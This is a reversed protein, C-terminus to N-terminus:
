KDERIEEGDPHVQQSCRHVFWLTEFWSFRRCDWSCLQRVLRLSHDCNVIKKRAETLYKTAICVFYTDNTTDIFLRIKKIPALNYRKKWTVVKAREKERQGADRREGRWERKMGKRGEGGDKGRGERGRGGAGGGKKSLSRSDRSRERTFSPWHKKFFMLFSYWHIKNLSRRTNAWPSELCLLTWSWSDRSPTHTSSRSSRSGCVLEYGYLYYSSCNLPVCKQRALMLLENKVNLTKSDRLAKCQTCHWYM